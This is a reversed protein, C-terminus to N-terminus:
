RRHWARHAAQAPQQCRKPQSSAGWPCGRTAATCSPSPAAAGHCAHPGRPTAAGTAAAPVSYGLPLHIMSGATVGLCVTSIRSNLTHGQVLGGVHWSAGAARGGAAVQGPPGQAPAEARWSGALEAKWGKRRRLQAQGKGIMPNREVMGGHGGVMGLQGRWAVAESQLPFKQTFPVQLWAVLHM